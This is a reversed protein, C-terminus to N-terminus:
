AIGANAMRTRSNAPQTLNAAQTWTTCGRSMSKARLLPSVLSPQVQKPTLNQNCAEQKVSAAHRCIEELSAAATVEQGPPPLNLSDGTDTSPTIAVIERQEQPQCASSLKVAELEPKATNKSVSAAPGSVEEPSAQM